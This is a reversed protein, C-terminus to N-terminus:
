ARVKLREHLQKFLSDRASHLKEVAENDTMECAFADLKKFTVGSKLYQSARPLSRFKEYPTMMDKYRYVKVQKGKKDTTTSPFYCPRHFNVYRYLPGSNLETFSDAYRQPIHGYGYLKRIVSGNKSEVLGNDNSHRPRSKTFNIHLKELLEAVSYNIYESGNDTHFGKIKFPFANLMAKLAPLMHEETIRELTAVV